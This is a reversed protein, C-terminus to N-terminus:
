FRCSANSRAWSPATSCSRVPLIAMAGIYELNFREPLNFDLQVTALQWSRDLADKATFDIKPGYFAAEGAVEDM